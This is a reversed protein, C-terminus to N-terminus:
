EVVGVTIRYNTFNYRLYHQKQSNKMNKNKNKNMPAYYM